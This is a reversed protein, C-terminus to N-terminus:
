PGVFVTTGHGGEFRSVQLGHADLAAAYSGNLPAGSPDLKFCAVNTRGKFAYVTCALDTGAARFGAGVPVHATIKFDSVAASRPQSIHSAPEKWRAVRTTRGSSSRFAALENEDIRFSYAANTTAHASLCALGVQNAPGGFACVIDTGSVAVGQGLGLTLPKAGAGLAAATACLSAIVLALACFCRTPCRRSPM